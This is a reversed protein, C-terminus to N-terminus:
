PTRWDALLSDRNLRVFRVAADARVGVRTLLYLPRGPYEAVLVSDRAHLDRAYTNTGGVILQLPAFHLSGQQEEEARRACVTPEGNGTGRMASSATSELTRDRSGVLALMRAEAFSGILGEREVVSTALELTCLDTRQYVAETFPRSAGRAWLRAVLQAGWSERVFVLAEKVGSRSALSAYDIRSATLEARYTAVRVPLNFVVAGLVGFGLVATVLIRERRAEGFGHVVLPARAAWLVLVPLLPFLFRPGLYFGDHWYLAYLVVLLGASALLYRDYASLRRTFILAVLPLLLSPFPTEFLYSQLRWQYLSALALGRLPTHPDGWPAAHFGLGHASGWLVEYGFRLPHGTTELNVYMMMAFPVAVGLGAFLNERWRERSRGARWALWLAAPLAFAFADLPRITAAAGFGVGVLLAHSATAKEQASILRGLASVSVLIWLLAMSHNMHSGFMFAGFPTVAFLVTAGAIWRGTAMPEAHRAVQSFLWVSIAGCVPGVLWPLGALVGLSLMAPGGPPFQAYTRDGTDVLHLLSFFERHSPTPLWLRGEAYRQAQWLQAIEDILLPRRSFVASAVIAYLILACLAVLLLVAGEPATRGARAAPAAAATLEVPTQAAAAPGWFGRRSAMWAVLGIGATLATGTLWDHLHAPLEAIVLGTHLMAPWPIFGLLVLAAAAVRAPWTARMGDMRSSAPM